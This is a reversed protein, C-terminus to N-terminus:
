ECGQPEMRQPSSAKAIGTLDKSSPDDIKLEFVVSVSSPRGNMHVDARLIEGDKELPSKKLITANKMPMVEM